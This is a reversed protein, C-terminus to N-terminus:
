QLLGDALPRRSIKLAVPPIAIHWTILSWTLFSSHLAHHRNYIHTYAQYRIHRISFVWATVHAESLTYPLSYPPVEYYRLYLLDGFTDSFASTRLLAGFVLCFVTASTDWSLPYICASPWSYAPFSSDRKLWVYVIDLMYVYICGDDHM